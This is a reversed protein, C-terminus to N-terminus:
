SILKFRTDFYGNKRQVVHGMRPRAHATYEVRFVPKDQEAFADCGMKQANQVRKMLFSVLEKDRIDGWREDWGSMEGGKASEPYDDADDRWDEYSCSIYAIVKVQQGHLWNVKEKSLQDLELVVWNTNPKLKNKLDDLDDIHFIQFHLDSM